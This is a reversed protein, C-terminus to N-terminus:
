TALVIPQYYGSEDPRLWRVDAFGATHLAATLTDRRLARYTTEHASTRWGCGEEALTFLSIAVQDGDDSWTWAQGAGHRSGPEGHLTIPVGAPREAALADYDRLSALLLGGDRLCARISRLAAALDDDTLLHPLANDCSIVADFGSARPERVDAVELQVEIGRADAERRARAVAGASIDSGTVHFGRAALPLAQTGIGCTADLVRAPPEVGLDALVQAVVAGHWQAAAWWDEFLAGYEEALGDYFERAEAM